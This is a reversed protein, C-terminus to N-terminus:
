GRSSPKLSRTIALRRPVDSLVTALPISHSTPREGQGLPGQHDVIETVMFFFGL